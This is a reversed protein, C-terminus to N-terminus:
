RTDREPTLRAIVLMRDRFDPAWIRESTGTRRAIRVLGRSLPPSYGGIRELYYRVTFAKPSSTLELVEFGRCELLRRLSGSTFYQVHTPIVSWWRRGLMRATRSGADPLALALVGGPALLAAARDLAAGPDPLHEIVDGMFIAQFDREPLEADLLEGQIVDIGNQDRAYAAARVSPEVGIARWGRRNAEAAFYGIWCGLDALRGPRTWAEIRGLIAAATARQGPEEGTYDEAPVAGYAEGLEAAGPMPDIQMHGCVGCRVIDALATGFRDTGPRLGAEGVEGATAMHPVLGASGCAACRTSPTRM